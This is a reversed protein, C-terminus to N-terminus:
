VYVIINHPKNILYNLMWLGRRNTQDTILFLYDLRIHVPVNVPLEIFLDDLTKLLEEKMTDLTKPFEDFGNSFPIVHITQNQKQISLAEPKKLLEIIALKVKKKRSGKLHQLYPHGEVFREPAKFSQIRIFFDLIVVDTLGRRGFFSREKIEKIM